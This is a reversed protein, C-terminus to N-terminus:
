VTTSVDGVFTFYFTAGQGEKGEAWIEGGHRSVIRKVTALGIGTGEFDAQHRHFTEFLKESYKLDFGIGNDRIFYVTKNKMQISGSEIRARSTKSTFKWANDILNRMMIQLLERDGKVIQHEAIVWQVKRDPDMQQYERAISQIELGLDVEEFYLHDRKLRSLNLLNDILNGMERCRLSIRKLYDKGKNNLNSSHEELLIQSFGSMSRLPARLDHSVSYSFAELDRNSQELAGAYEKISAERAELEANTEQLDKTREKVLLELVRRQKDLDYIRFEIFGLVAAVLLFLLLIRFWWIQWFPPTIIVSLSKGKENWLGDNNSGKVHFTYHGPNLNTYNAERKNGVYNWAKDFGEMKYAYQNNESFIYNLAIFRFTFFNQKHSLVLEKTQSIHKKLPCDEAGIIVPQNFLLFDTIHIHPIHDNDRISDPHFVNFGHLGGFYMEGSRSKFYSWRNFVKSQLGDEVTYNRISINITGHSTDLTVKSLGATSSIWLNEHNDELIGVVTASPLGHDMTYNNFSRTKRNFISLGGEFSGIWLRHRSDEHIVNISNSILSSSDETDHIFFESKGTERDLNILGSGETAFWVTEEHDCFIDHIGNLYINEGEPYNLHVIEFKRSVPNFLYAGTQFAGVWLNGHGDQYLNFVSHSNPNDADVPLYKQKLILQNGQIQFYNLGGRWMGVWLGGRNDAQVALVKDNTLARPNGKQSKFNVFRLNDTDFLNIGGGDTGIWINGKSDQSFSTVSNGYLSHVDQKDHRYLLFRGFRKDSMSVGGAWCGIWVIGDDGVYLEQISNSLLSQESQSTTYHSFWGTTPDFVNLGGGNTGILIKGDTHEALSFISNNNLSHSDGSERKYNMIKGSQMDIVDLGKTVYGIWIMNRDDILLAYIANEKLQYGPQDASFASLTKTKPQYKILGLDAASRFSIWINDHIDQCIGSCYALEDPTYTEEFCVKFTKQVPDFLYIGRGCGMWLQNNRDEFIEVVSNEIRRNQSDYFPIREFHDYDRDYRCLGRATGIWLNNRCDEKISIVYNSSLSCTDNRNYQYKTFGIGDYRNLGDVTGIWLYDEHDKFICLVDGHSLGMEPTLNRFVMKGSQAAHCFCTLIFIVIAWQKKM